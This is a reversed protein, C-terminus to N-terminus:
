TRKPHPSKTRGYARGENPHSASPTAPPSTRPRSTSRTPTSAPPTSAASLPTATPRDGARRPSPQQAPLADGRSPKAAPWPTLPMRTGGVFGFAVIALYAAVLVGVVIGALRVLRRRRGTGDVFVPDTKETLRHM